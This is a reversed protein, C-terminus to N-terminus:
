VHCVRAGMLTCAGRSLIDFYEKFTLIHGHTVLLPELGLRVSPRVSPSVSQSVLQRYYYSKVHSSKTARYEEFTELSM